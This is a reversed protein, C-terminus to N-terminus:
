EISLLMCVCQQILFVDDFLVIPHAIGKENAVVLPIELNKTTCIVYIYFNLIIKYSIALDLISM